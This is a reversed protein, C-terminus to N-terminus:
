KGAMRYVAVGSLVSAVLVTVVVTWTLSTPRVCMPIVYGTGDTTPGGRCTPAIFLGVDVLANWLRWGLKLALAITAGVIAGTIAWVWERM